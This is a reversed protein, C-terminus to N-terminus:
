ALSVQRSPPDVEAVLPEALDNAGCESARVDFDDATRVPDVVVAPVDDGRRRRDVGVRRPALHQLRQQHIPELEARMDFLALAGDVREHERTGVPLEPRVNM